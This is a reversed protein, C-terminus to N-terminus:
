QQKAHNENEKSAITFLRVLHSHNAEPFHEREFAQENPDACTSLENEKRKEALRQNRHEVHERNYSSQNDM